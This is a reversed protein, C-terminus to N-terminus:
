ILYNGPKRNPTKEYFHHTITRAMTKFLNKPDSGQIKKSKYFPNLEGIVIQSIVNKNHKESATIFTPMELKHSNSSSTSAHPKRENEQEKRPRKSTNHEPKPKEQEMMKRKQTKKEIEFGDGVDIILKKNDEDNSDDAIVLPQEQEDDDDESPPIDQLQQKIVKQIQELKTLESDNSSTLDEEIIPSNKPPSEADSVSVPKNNFFSSIKPQNKGDRGSKLFSKPIKVERRKKDDELSEFVDAGYRKMIDDSIAKYDGGHAARKKPDHKILEPYLEDKSTTAKIKQIAQAIGRQYLSHVKVKTFCEYEIIIGIDELDKYILKHAPKTCGPKKDCHELNEKLKQVILTLSSERSKIKLGVVKKDTSLAHKVRSIQASPEMELAQAAMSKRLAFQKDIFSREAKKAAVQNSASSEGGSDAEYSDFSGKNNNGSSKGGEYLDTPDADYSIFGRLSGSVSLKHFKEINKEVQNKSKCVDCMKACEPPDDGFYDTFLRHRCGLGECYDVIKTFEKIAQKAQLKKEESKNKSFNIEKQLLFNMSKVEDRCYYLRCYSHKGDRGARGSEQYYEAVNSAVDWHIVFRVSKKDVGMGFSVTAAIVPCIGNMWDEQVQIRESQKLGAHYAGTKMGLKTLCNAVRETNERTRCYIIGCPKDPLKLDDDAEDEFCKEVFMKLEIFDDELLNKFQIDYFLNSRFCSSKFKAVPTKLNLNKLVDVVVDKSATATLAIWPVSPFAKRLRGLKLYDPRFDHGWASVCHAEDVAIYAVKQWKILHQLLEQFSNTAAQEPTIYLFKTNTKRAKM